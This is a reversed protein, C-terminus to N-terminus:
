FRLPAAIDEPLLPDALMARADDPTVLAREYHLMGVQLGLADTVQRAQRRTTEGDHSAGVLGLLDPQLAQLGLLYLGGGIAVGLVVDCGARLDSIAAEAHYGGLAPLTTGVVLVPGGTFDFVRRAAIKARQDGGVAPQAFLDVGAPVLGAVEEEAGAPEFAVFAAGHATRQAWAATRVLLAAQLRSAREPGLSEHLPAGAVAASPARAMVLVAPAPSSM